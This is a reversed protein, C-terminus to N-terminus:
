EIIILRSVLVIVVLGVMLIKILEPLVDFWPGSGLNISANQIYKAGFVGLIMVVLAGVGSDYNM